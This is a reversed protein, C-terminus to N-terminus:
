QSGSRIWRWPRPWCRWFCCSVLRRTTEIARPGDWSLPSCTAAWSSSRPSSASRWDLGTLVAFTTRGYSTALQNRGAIVTMVVATSSMALGLGVIVASQWHLEIVYYLFAGLPAATLVVQLLGLGFLERRMAWVQKPLMELGVTFLFLVVGLESIDQLSQVQEIAVPGPTHPGVLVGAVIFGVVSGLGLREFFTVCVATATLLVVLSVLISDLDM